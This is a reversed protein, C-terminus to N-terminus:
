RRELRHYKQLGLMMSLDFEFLIMCLLEQRDPQSVLQVESDHFDCPCPEVSSLDCSQGDTPQISRLAM